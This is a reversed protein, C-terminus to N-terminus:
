AEQPLVLSVNYTQNFQDVDEQTRINAFDTLAEESNAILQVIDDTIEKPLRARLTSFDMQQVQSTQSGAPGMPKPMQESITEQEEVMMGQQYGARGGEKLNEPLKGTKKYEEFDKMTGGADIIAKLVIKEIEDKGKIQEIIDLNIRIKEENQAKKNNIEEIRTQHAPKEPNLTRIEIDLQENEKGLRNNEKSRDELITLEELQYAKKGGGKLEAAKLGAAMEFADGLIAQNLKNQEAEEQDKGTAYATYPDRAALAATQFINGQPAMGMLNLGFQTLFRPLRSRTEYLGKDEGAKKMADYYELADKVTKGTSYGQRKLGSTIGSGTSGGMKFMPRNLVRSM